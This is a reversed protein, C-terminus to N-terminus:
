IGVDIKKHVSMLTDMDPCSDNSIGVDATEHRYM